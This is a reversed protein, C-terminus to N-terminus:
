HFNVYGTYCNWWALGIFCYGGAKHIVKTVFDTRKGVKRGEWKLYRIRGAAVLVFLMFLMTIGVIAHAQSKDSAGVSAEVGILLPIMM